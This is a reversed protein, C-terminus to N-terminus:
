KLREAVRYPYTSNNDRTCQYLFAWLSWMTSGSNSSLHGWRSEMEVAQDNQELLADDRAQVKTRSVVEDGESGFTWLVGLHITRFYSYSWAIKGNFISGHSELSRLFFSWDKAHGVINQLIQNGIEERNLAVVRRMKGVGAVHAKKWNKSNVMSSREGPVKYIDVSMSHGSYEEWMGGEKRYVGLEDRKM